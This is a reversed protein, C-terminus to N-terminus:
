FQQTQKLYIHNLTPPHYFPAVRPYMSSDSEDSTILNVKLETATCQLCLPPQLAFSTKTRSPFIGTPSLRADAKVHYEQRKTSQIMKMIQYKRGKRVM